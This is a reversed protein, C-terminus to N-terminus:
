CSSLYRCCSTARCRRAAIFCMRNKNSENSELSSSLINQPSFLIRSHSFSRIRVILDDSEEEPNDGNPDRLFYIFDFLVEHGVSLM